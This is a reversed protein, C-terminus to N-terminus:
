KQIMYVFWRLNIHMCLAKSDMYFLLARYGKDREERLCCRMWIKLLKQMWPPYYM